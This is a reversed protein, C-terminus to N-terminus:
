TITESFVMMSATQDSFQANQEAGVAKYFAISRQLDSVPLNVFIM